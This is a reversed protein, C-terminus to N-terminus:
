WEFRAGIQGYRHGSVGTVHGFFPSNIDTNPASWHHRNFADFFQARLTAQFRGDRGFSFRKVMSIDESAWAWDRLSDQISYKEPSFAGFAPSSYAAPDFYV